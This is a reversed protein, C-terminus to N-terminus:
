PISEPAVHPAQQRLTKHAAGLSRCSCSLASLHPRGPRPSFRTEDARWLSLSWLGQLWALVM